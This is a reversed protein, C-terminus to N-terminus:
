LPPVVLSLEAKEVLHVWDADLEDTVLQEFDCALLVVIEVYLRRVYKM